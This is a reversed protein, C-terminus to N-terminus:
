IISQLSKGIIKMVDAVINEGRGVSANSHAEQVRAPVVSCYIQGSTNTMFMDLTALFSKTRQPVSSSNFHQNGGLERQVIGVDGMLGWQFAKSYGVVNFFFM